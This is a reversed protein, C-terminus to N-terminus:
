PQPTNPTLSSVVKDFEVQMEPTLKSRFSQAPDTYPSCKSVYFIHEEKDKLYIEGDFVKLELYEGNNWLFKDGKKLDMWWERPPTGFHQRIENYKLYAGNFTNFWDPMEEPLPQLAPKEEQKVEEVQGERLRANYVNIMGYCDALLDESNIEACKRALKNLIKRVEIKVDASQLEKLAEEVLRDIEQLKKMKMADSRRPNITILHVQTLPFTFNM